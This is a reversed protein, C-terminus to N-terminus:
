SNCRCDLVVDGTATMQLHINRFEIKTSHSQLGIYGKRRKIGPHDDERHMFDILNTEIIPKGNVSVKVEPGSCVIELKQWEGTATIQYTEGKTVTIGSSVHYIKADVM